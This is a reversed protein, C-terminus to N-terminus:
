IEVICVIKKFYLLCIIWKASNGAVCKELELASCHLSSLLKLFDVFVISRSRQGMVKSGHGQGTVKFNM